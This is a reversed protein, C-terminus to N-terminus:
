KTHDLTQGTKPVTHRRLSALRQASQTNKYMDLRTCETHEHVEDTRHVPTNPYRGLRPYM